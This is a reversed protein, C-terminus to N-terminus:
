PQMDFTGACRRCDAWGTPRVPARIREAHAARCAAETNDALDAIGAESPRAASWASYIDM